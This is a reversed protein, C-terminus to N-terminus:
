RTIYACLSTSHALSAGLKDPSRLGKAPHSRRAVSFGILNVRRSWNGHWLQWVCTRNRRHGFRSFQWPYSSPPGLGGHSHLPLSHRSQFRSPFSQILVHTLFEVCLSIDFFPSQSDATIRPTPVSTGYGLSSYILLVQIAPDTCRLIFPHLFFRRKLLPLRGAGQIRQRM